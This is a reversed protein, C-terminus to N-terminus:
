ADISTAFFKSQRCPVRPLHCASVASSAARPLRRGSTKHHMAATLGSLVPQPAADAHRHLGWGKDIPPNACWAPASHDTRTGYRVTCYQVAHRVREFAELCVWWLKDDTRKNELSMSPGDNRLIACGQDTTISAKPGKVLSQRYFTCKECALKAVDRM